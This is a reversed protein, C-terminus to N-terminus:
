CAERAEADPDSREMSPWLVVQDRGGQKARYVAEDAAKLLDDVGDIGPSRQAVGLSLTVGREFDGAQIVNVALAARLREACRAAAGLDADSCIVIFEEGGIRCVAENRRTASRLVAAAEELVLDGVDHGHNDNIRKFNDIDMMVLSLPQGTRDSRAWEERLRDMAYRRNPLGTLADTIAAHKMRAALRRSQECHARIIGRDQDVQDWQALFTRAALVRALLIQPAADKGIFDNIGDEYAKVIEEEKEEGTFLIFFTRRGLESRRLHRCLELGDMNPMRWDSLVVQPPEQRMVDLAEAGDSAVEVRHGARELRRRTVLRVTPDDEVLLVHLGDGEPRPVLGGAGIPNYRVPEVGRENWDCLESFGPLTRTPIVLLDGWDWWDNVVGDALANILERSLGHRSRLRVFEPWRDTREAKDSCIVSSFLESIEDVEMCLDPIGVPPEGGSRLERSRGLAPGYVRRSFGLHRLTAWTVTDRDIGFSGRERIALDSPQALGRDYILEDYRSPNAEAIALQGLEACLGALFARVPDELGFLSALHRASLARALARTWFDDYALAKSRGVRLSRFLVVGLAVERSTELGLEDLFGEVEAESGAQLAVRRPEHLLWEIAAFLRVDGVVLDRLAERHVAPDWAGRVLFAASDPISPCQIRYHALGNVPISLVHLPSPAM